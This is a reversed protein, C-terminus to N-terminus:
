AGLGIGSERYRRSKWKEMRRRIRRMLTQAVEHIEEGSSVAFFPGVASNVQLIGKIVGDKRNFSARVAAGYPAEERVEELLNQLMLASAESPHFGHYHIVIDESM